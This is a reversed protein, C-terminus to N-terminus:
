GCARRKGKTGSLNSDQSEPHTAPWFLSLFLMAVDLEILFFIESFDQSTFHPKDIIDNTCNWIWHIFHPRVGLSLIMAVRYREPGPRDVTNNRVGGRSLFTRTTSSRGTFNNNRGILHRFRHHHLPPLSVPCGYRQPSLLYSAALSPLSGM